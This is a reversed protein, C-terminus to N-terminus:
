DEGEPSFFLAGRMPEIIQFGPPLHQLMEAELAAIIQDHRADAPVKVTGFIIPKLGPYVAKACWPIMGRPRM